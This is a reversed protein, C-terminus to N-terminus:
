MTGTPTAHAHTSYTTINSQCNCVHGAPEPEIWNQWGACNGDPGCGNLCTSPCSANSISIVAIVCLAIEIWKAPIKQPMNCCCHIPGKPQFTGKSGFVDVPHWTSNLQAMKQSPKKITTRAWSCADKFCQSIDKRSWITHPVKKENHTWFPDTVNSWFHLNNNYNRWRQCAMLPV